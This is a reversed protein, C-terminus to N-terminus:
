YFRSFVNTLLGQLFAFFLMITIIILLDRNSPIRFYSKINSKFNYKGGNFYILNEVFNLIIFVIMSMIIIHHPRGNFHYFM